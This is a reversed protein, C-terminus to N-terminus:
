WQTEVRTGDLVGKQFKSCPLKFDRTTLHPISHPFHLLVCVNKSHNSGDSRLVM